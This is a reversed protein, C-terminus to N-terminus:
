TTNISTLANTAPVNDNTNRPSESAANPMGSGPTNVVTPNGDIRAAAQIRADSAVPEKM